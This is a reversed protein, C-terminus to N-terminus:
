EYRERQSALSRRRRVGFQQLSIGASTRPMHRLRLSPRAYARFQSFSSTLITVGGSFDSMSNVFVRRPKRWRLPLNLRDPWLRLDFGQEYPSGITGRFREAFREAYCRDCGPSVKTCGTVPNWTEDTWEIKSV